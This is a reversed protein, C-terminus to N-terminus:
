LLSKNLKQAASIFAERADTAYPNSLQITRFLDESHHRELDALDLIRQFSPTRLLSEHVNMQVLARAIFFTLAHVNAMEHDHKDASIEAITLGLSQCFDKVVDYHDKDSAEPCLVMTHGELSDMASQPGFLPHAVVRKQGPLLRDLLEVPRVKVSCVDIIVTSPPILKAVEPLVSEYASLPISLILYDSTVAEDFRARWKAPVTDPTRSSVCVKVFPDLKGALFEGFGNFGIIGVTKM